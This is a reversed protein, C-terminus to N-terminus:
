AGCTIVNMAGADTNVVLEGKVTIALVGAARVTSKVLVVVAIQVLPPAFPAVMVKVPVVPVHVM